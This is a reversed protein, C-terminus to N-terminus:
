WGRWPPRSRILSPAGHGSSVYALEDSYESISIGHKRSYDYVGKAIIATKSSADFQGSKAAIILELSIKRADSFPLLDRAEAAVEMALEPKALIAKIEKLAAPSELKKEAEQILRQRAPENKGAFDRVDTLVDIPLIVRPYFDWVDRGTV